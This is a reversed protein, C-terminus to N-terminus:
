SAKAPDAPLRMGLFQRAAGMIDPSFIDGSMVGPYEYIKVTFDPYARILEGKSQLQKDTMDTDLKEKKILESLLKTLASDDMKSLKALMGKMFEAQLECVNRVGDAPDEFLLLAEVNTAGVTVNGASVAREIKIEDKPDVTTEAKATEKEAGTTVEATETSTTEKPPEPFYNEGDTYIDESVYCSFGGIAKVIDDMETVNAIFTYDPIIGTMASVKQVFYEKDYLYMVDELLTYGAGMQTYVRSISPVPIISYERTEKCVRVLVINKVKVTHYDKGLLGVSKKQDTEIKEIEKDTEPFYDYVEERKDTIGFLVTFSDGKVEPADEDTNQLVDTTDTPAETFFSDLRDNERDLIGSVTSTLFGVMFYAVISFILVSILFTIGFNKFAPM